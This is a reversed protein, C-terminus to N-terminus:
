VSSIGPLDKSVLILEMSLLEELMDQTNDEFVYIRELFKSQVTFAAIELEIPCHWM